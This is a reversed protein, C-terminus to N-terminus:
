GRPRRRKRPTYIETRSLLNELQQRSIRFRGFSRLVNLHGAYILRYVTAPHVNLLRAADGVTFTEQKSPILAGEVTLQRRIMPDETSDVDHKRLILTLFVCDCSGLLSAVSAAIKNIVQQQEENIQLAIPVISPM